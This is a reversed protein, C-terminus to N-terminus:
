NRPKYMICIYPINPLVTISSLGARQQLTMPILIQYNNSVHDFVPYLRNVEGGEIKKVKHDENKPWYRLVAHEIKAATAFQVKAYESESSISIHVQQPETSGYTRNWDGSNFEDYKWLQGPGGDLHGAGFVFHNCLVLVLVVISLTRYIM